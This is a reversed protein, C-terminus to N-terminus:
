WRWYCRYLGFGLRERFICHCFAVSGGVLGFWFPAGYVGQWNSHSIIIIIYLFIVRESPSSYHHLSFHYIHQARRHAAATLQAKHPFTKIDRRAVGGNQRVGRDTLSVGKQQRLHQRAGAGYQQFRLFNTRDAWHFAGSHM